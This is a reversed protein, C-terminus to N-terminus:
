APNDKSRGNNQKKIFERYEKESLDTIMVSTPNISKSVCRSCVGSVAEQDIKMEQKKCSSCTVLKLGLPNKFKIKAM